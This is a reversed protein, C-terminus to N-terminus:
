PRPLPGETRRLTGGAEVLDQRPPEFTVRLERGISACSKEETSFRTAQENLDSSWVRGRGPLGDKELPRPCYDWPDTGRPSSCFRPVVPKRKSSSTWSPIGSGDSSTTPAVGFQQDDCSGPHPPKLKDLDVPPTPPSSSCGSVEVRNQTADVPHEWRTTM